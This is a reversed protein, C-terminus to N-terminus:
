SGWSRVRGTDVHVFNQNKYCGVGGRKLSKAANCVHALSVGPVRIDIAKGQLHFSQKSVGTSNKRLMANTKPSRYGSIIHFCVISPDKPNLVKALDSLIELLGVEIKHVENTRHDRLIYDIQEMGKSDLSGSTNKYDGKFTEHTHTNYLCLNQGFASGSIQFLFCFISLFLFKLFISNYM